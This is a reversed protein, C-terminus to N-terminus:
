KEVITVSLIKDGPPLGATQQPNRATLSEVVDMGKTVQAFVTYSGDLKPEPAYTIFFQSGNTDPGANAMGVVGPKDFLLDAVVENKFYYGPGGSGTGSPDGAQAVYGPLVRHFTVGNFWGQRALFVFSNVALPAKDAYLEMVIDGKETHITATYKKSQDINFPPCTKFQKSGLAILGITADLGDSTLAPRQQLSGNIFVTPLGTIGLTSGSAYMSKARGVTESSVLDKAFRDRDMGLGSAQDGVWQEFASVSLATWAGYKSDLLERMEWFKNQDGAAILAQVSIQSKDLSAIVSTPVPYPRLVVRLDNGHNKVLQDLEDNFVKCQESQFDCYALLTVPANAPGRVYDSATIPPLLSTVQPTPMAKIESCGMVSTPTAASPTPAPVTTPKALPQSACATLSLLFFSCAILTTRLM